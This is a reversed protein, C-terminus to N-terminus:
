FEEEEEDLLEEELEEDDFLDGEDGTLEDLGEGDEDLLSRYDSVPSTDIRGISELWYLISANAPTPIVDAPQDIPIERLTPIVLPPEDLPHLASSEPTSM